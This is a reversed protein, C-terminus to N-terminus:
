NILKKKELKRIRKKIGVIEDHEEIDFIWELILLGVFVLVFTVLFGEISLRSIQSFDLDFFIGHIILVIASVLSFLITAIIKRRFVRQKRRM